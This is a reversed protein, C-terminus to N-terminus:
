TLRVNSVDLTAFSGSASNRKVEFVIYYEGHLASIDITKSGIEDADTGDALTVSGVPILNFEKSNTLYAKVYQSGTSGTSAEYNFQLSSFESVNVKRSIVVGSADTGNTTANITMSSGFAVTPVNASASGESNGAFPVFEGQNRGYYLDLETFGGPMFNRWSGGSWIQIYDNEQNYRIGLGIVSEASPIKKTLDGTSMSSFNVIDKYYLPEYGNALMVRVCEGYGVCVKTQYEPESGSFMKVTYMDRNPVDFEVRQGSITGTFSNTGNSVTVTKGEDYLKTALCIIKCMGFYYGDEFAM